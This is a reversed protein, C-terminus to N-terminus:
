SPLWLLVGLQTDEADELDNNYIFGMFDKMDSEYELNEFRPSSWLEYLERMSVARLPSGDLNRDYTKGAINDSMGSGFSVTSPGEHTFLGVLSNLLRTDTIWVSNSYDVYVGPTTSDWLCLCLTKNM